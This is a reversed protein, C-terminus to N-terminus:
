TNRALTERIFAWAKEVATAFPDLSGNKALVAPPAVHLWYKDVYSISDLSPRLRRILEVGTEHTVLVFAITRRGHMGKWLPRQIARIIQGIFKNSEELDSIFEVRLVFPQRM